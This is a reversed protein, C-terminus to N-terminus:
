KFFEPEENYLDLLWPQPVYKLTMENDWGLSFVQEPMHLFLNNELYITDGATKDLLITKDESELLRLIIGRQRPSLTQYKRKLHERIRKNRKKEIVRSIASFIIITLILAISLLFVIGIIRSWLVPLEDLKMKALISKPLFLLLGTLLAIAVMAPTIKKFNDFTKETIKDVPLNM